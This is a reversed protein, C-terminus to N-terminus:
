LTRATLPTIEPTVRLSVLEDRAVDANRSVSNSYPDRILERAAKIPTATRLQNFSRAPSHSVTLILCAPFLVPLLKKPM